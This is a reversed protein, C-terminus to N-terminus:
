NVGTRTIAWKIFLIEVLPGVYIPVTCQGCSCLPDPVEITPPEKTKM